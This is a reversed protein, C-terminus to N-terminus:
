FYPMRSAWGHDLCWCLPLVDKSLEVVKTSDNFLPDCFNFFSNTYLHLVHAEVLNIMDVFGYYVCRLMPCIKYFYSGGGVRAHSMACGLNIWPWMIVELQSSYITRMMTLICRWLWLRTKFGYGMKISEVHFDLKPKM